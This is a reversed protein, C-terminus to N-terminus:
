NRPLRITANLGHQRGNELVIDGGHGRVISRAIALGLGVGGTAANRSTELRVFPAFVREVEGAPIGPGDDAVAIELSEDTQQLTVRARDGYRVANEVLNRVARRLADPRCCCPLREGNSFSVDWGLDALDDCLSEVLAHLDVARTPEATAESRAFALAAETMAQMEALTALLKERTEPDSVFEARLRLSTIPTRLDHGLAALMRTRDEVFRRLRMQMRNFAAATRRIDDAGEEPLLEVQEGRGLREATHTLRQLPRSIRRAILVAAVSFIVASIVFSVYYRPPPTTALLYAPKAYVANLWAGDDLQVAVGFGNWEELSLLQAPRQLLWAEASLTEWGAATTRDLVPDNAFLNAAPHLHDATHPSHLLRERATRQWAGPEAPPETTLWYRTLPTGTTRLTEERLEAPTGQTLRAVSTTRGLFEDRIVQRMAQAREGRYILLSFAQSLVLALLMLVILQGTLSRTWVPKM